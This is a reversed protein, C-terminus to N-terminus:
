RVWRKYLALGVLGLLMLWWRGPEPIPATAAVLYIPGTPAGWYIVPPDAVARSVVAPVPLPDASAVAEFSPAEAWVPAGLALGGGGSGGDGANGGGSGAPVPERDLQHVRTVRSVNRCVTPVILCHGGECYVLGREVMKDSWGSRDPQGCVTRRGFHMERLDTYEHAGRIEDRTIAAVDDYQRREIRAKLRDRVAVPIDTYHDVAAAPAGQYPNAGPSAWSCTALLVVALTSM